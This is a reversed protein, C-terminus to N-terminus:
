SGEVAQKLPLCLRISLLVNAPWILLYMVNNSLKYQLVAGCCLLIIPWWVVAMTEDNLFLFVIVLGYTLPLLFLWSSFAIILMVELLTKVTNPSSNSNYGEYSFALILICLILVYIIKSKKM